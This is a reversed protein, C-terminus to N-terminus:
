NSKNQFIRRKELIKVMNVIEYKAQEEKDVYEMWINRFRSSAQKYEVPVIETTTM